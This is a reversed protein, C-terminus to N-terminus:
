KPVAPLALTVSTGRSEQSSLSIEGSHREVIRRALSLGLGLGGAKSTFFPKFIKNMRDKPIGQGTDIISLEARNGNATSGV